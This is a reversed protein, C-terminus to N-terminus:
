DLIDYNEEDLLTIIGNYMRDFLYQREPSISKFIYKECMLSAIPAAWEAGWGGNEIFVAIAIQPNDKPAFGFFVSHDKGHPNQSTGTKGCMALKDLFVSRATGQIVVKEMGNIISPFYKQDINTFRKTTLRPDIPKGSVFKKALHPTIFYGQNAIIAALNAMQVTTLELEGQGIGLSLIWASRWGNSEKRYLRDYFNSNPVFGASEYSYDLGLKEGLGFLKLDNYFTDLGKNPNRYGYIDLIERMLQFFYTNCSHQIAMEMNSPYTHGHCKQVKTASLRYYGPCPIGRDLLTTQRQLAILGLIPKFISGPPYKNTVARNNLPKNVTDRLLSLIGQNRNEDLNLINPDYAPASVMALIEGSRPEIAVIAGKKNRLLSDAFAQLDLDISIQLDHGPQPLTDLKGNEYTGVKRGLNDRLEYAVGKHGSLDDEYALELGTMGIYDGPHYKSPYKSIIKDNVEGLYGLVHAAHSHPYGRINREQIIFGPFKYAHEKFLAIRDPSIKSLFVFPVSKSFRADKWNKNLKDLFSTQDIGLLSCFMTTDMKPDIKNYIALLSYIPQNYVLTKGNRDYILGRSPYIYTKELTTKLAQEKYKNTFLQLSASKLLLIFSTLFVIYIIPYKRTHFSSM